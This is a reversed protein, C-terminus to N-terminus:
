SAFVEGRRTDPRNGPNCGSCKYHSAPIISTGQGGDALWYSTYLPSRDIRLSGAAFHRAIASQRIVNRTVSTVPRDSSTREDPYLTVTVADDASGSIRDRGALDDRDGQRGREFALEHDAQDRGGARRRPRRHHYGADPRAQLGSVACGM